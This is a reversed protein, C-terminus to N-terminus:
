LGWFEIPDCMLKGKRDFASFSSHWLGPADEDGFGEMKSKIVGDHRYVTEVTSVEDGSGTKATITNSRKTQKVFVRDCIVVDWQSNETLIHIQKLCAIFLRKFVERGVDTGPFVIYFTGSEAMKDRDYTMTLCLKEFYYVIRYLEYTNNLRDPPIPAQSYEDPEDNDTKLRNEKTIEKYWCFEEKPVLRDPFAVLRLPEAEDFLSRYIGSADVEIQFTNTPSTDWRLAIKDKDTLFLEYGRAVYGDPGQSLITKGERTQESLFGNDELNVIIWSIKPKTFLRELYNM